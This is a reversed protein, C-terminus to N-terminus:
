AGVEVALIESTAVSLALLRGDEQWGTAVIGHRQGDARSHWSDQPKLAANLRVVLGYSATPAWPKMVGMQRIEGQTIPLGPRTTDRHLSPAIWDEQPLTAIMDERFGRESLVFEFQPRRPAFIAVALDGTPSQSIRGPYGPLDSLVAAPKGTSPCLAILRHRWAESAVLRGDPLEVVGAPWALGTALTQPPQGPAAVGITGSQGRQLLDRRWQEAPNKLSGTCYAVRGDALPTLATVCAAEAPPLNSHVIGADSLSHLGTGTEAVVLTDAAAALATLNGAFRHLVLESGNGLELLEAGRIAFIRGKSVVMDTAKPCVARVAAMDLATNAHLPGDMSPVYIGDVSTEGFLRSLIRTM